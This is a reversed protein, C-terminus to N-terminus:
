EVVKFYHQYNKFGVLPQELTYPDMDGFVPERCMTYSLGLEDCKNLVEERYEDLSSLIHLKKYDESLKPKFKKEDIDSLFIKMEELPTM